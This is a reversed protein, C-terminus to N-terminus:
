APPTDVREERPVFIYAPYPAAPRYGLKQALALSAPNAADWSPYLGCDLCELILRAACASALGRRRHDERTDIEIEIGEQYVTYSSAGCVPEGEWLAAWGRGRCLFDGPGDFHACLSESWRQGSLNECLERTLRALRYGEPLGRALTHLRDRDFVSPDKQTAYRTIRRIEGPYGCEILEAWGKDPPVLVAQTKDMPLPSVFRADPKGAFFCFDGTIIRGTAPHLANDAWARGMCGELCSWVLTEESGAFLDRLPAGKVEVM